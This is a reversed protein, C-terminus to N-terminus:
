RTLAAGSERASALESDGQGHWVVGERPGASKEHDYLSSWTHIVHKRYQWRSGHGVAFHRRHLERRQLEHLGGVDQRQQYREATNDVIEGLHFLRAIIAFKITV